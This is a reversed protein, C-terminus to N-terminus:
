AVNAAARLDSRHRALWHLATVLPLVRIEAADAMEIARSAEILHTRIDEDESALGGVTEADDPLDCIGCFLTFYETTSGPSPYGASIEKLDSLALGVEENAERHAADAPTEGHDVRGAIPELTWPANDGRAFPGTRFQELLLVLDRVPDYPLVLASDGGVFVARTVQPSDAGDFRRFSLDFEQMVFFNSYPRRSDAVTVDGVGFGSIQAPEESAARLRSAARSKMQGFRVGMEPASLEGFYSMAEQATEVALAGHEAVWTPLHWLDGPDSHDVDSFYVAAAIEGAPSGDEDEVRVGVRRTQYGFAAEYYDLRALHDASLDDVVLGPAIGTLEARVHPWSGDPSWIVEHQPLFGTRIRATHGAGLVVDLLPLHCLTGYVFVRM